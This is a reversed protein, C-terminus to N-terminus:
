EDIHEIGRLAYEFWKKEENTKFNIEEFKLENLFVKEALARMERITKIEKKRM